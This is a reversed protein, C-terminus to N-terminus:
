SFFRRRTHFGWESSRESEAVLERRGVGGKLGGSERYGDNLAAGDRGGVRGQLGEHAAKSEANGGSNKKKREQKELGLFRKGVKGPMRKKEKDKKNEGEGRNWFRCSDEILRGEQGGGGTKTPNREEHKRRPEFSSCAGLHGLFFPHRGGRSKKKKESSCSRNQDLV